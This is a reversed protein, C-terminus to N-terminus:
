GGRGPGHSGLHPHGGGGEGGGHLGTRPEGRRFEAARSAGALGPPSGAPPPPPPAGTGPQLATPSLESPPFHIGWGM